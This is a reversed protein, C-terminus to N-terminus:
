CVQKIGDGDDECEAHEFLRLCSQNQIIKLPQKPM